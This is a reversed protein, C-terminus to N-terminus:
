ATQRRQRWASLVDAAGALEDPLAHGYRKWVLSADSHGLLRAVAHATLGAALLHSAFAHRLDHLRPLPEAIGAAKVARQFARSGPVPSLAGGDGASFVLEGEDPRGTALRHRRLRAVDDAPVPVDRRSARSKPSVVAYEGDRGRARDLSRRVHVVGDELDLGDAGWPLALAEGLRLGTGLLLGLLPEALSRGIRVDDAYAFDIIAAGEEATLVRCPRPEEGNTPIRVGACPNADLEGYRVAVRLAVRLARIAQRAHEPTREAALADALRQVEGTTITAVPLAGIRPVVLLRLGREYERTVAPKFPRGDRTRVTGDVMGKCLRRAADEVTVSAAVFKTPPRRPAEPAESLGDCADLAKARWSLAQELTPLTATLFRANRRVGVLYRPRGSADRREVIGRHSAM